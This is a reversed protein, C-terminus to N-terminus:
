VALTTGTEAEAFEVFRAAAEYDCAVVSRGILVPGGRLGRWGSVGVYSGPPIPESICYLTPAAGEDIDNALRDAATKVVRHTLAMLPSDSVHSLNSAV